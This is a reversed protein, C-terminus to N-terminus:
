DNNQKDKILKQLRSSRSGSKGSNDSDQTDSSSTRKVSSDRTDSDGSPATYAPKTQPVPQTAVPANGAPVTSIQANGHMIETVASTRKDSNTQPRPTASSTTAAKPRAEKQINPQVTAPVNNAPAGNNQTKRRLIDLLASTRNEATQSRITPTSNAIPQQAAYSQVTAPAAQGSNRIVTSRSSTSTTIRPAAYPSVRIQAESTTPVATSSNIIRKLNDTRRGTNSAIERPLAPLALNNKTTYTHRVNVTDSYIRKIDQRPVAVRCPEVETFDAAPVYSYHWDNLGFDCDISVDRDRYRFGTGHHYRAEPPLPAWGVYSSSYRWQVWSPAWVTDPIWVWRYGAVYAWRGYHFTAWGWSYRSRWCWGDNTWDWTGDDLYPRWSTNIITVLPQWVMGYPEVSIWLGNRALPQHFDNISTITPETVVPIPSSGSIIFTQPPAVPAPQIVTTKNEAPVQPPTTSDSGNQLSALVKKRILALITKPPLGLDRLAQVAQEDTMELAGDTASSQATVTQPVTGTTEQKEPSPTSETINQASEHVETRILDMLAEPPLGLDRLAQVAQEDTMEPAEAPIESWAMNVQFGTFGILAALICIRTKM